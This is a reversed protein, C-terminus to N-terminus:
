NGPDFTQVDGAIPHPRFAHQGVRTHRARLESSLGDRPTVADGHRGGRLFSPPIRLRLLAVSVASPTSITARHSIRYPSLYHTVGSRLTERGRRKFIDEAGVLSEQPPQTVPHRAVRRVGVVEHLLREHSRPL